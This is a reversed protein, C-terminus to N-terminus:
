KGGGCLGLALLKMFNHPKSPIYEIIIQNFYDEIKAFNLNKVGLLYTRNHILLNYAQM